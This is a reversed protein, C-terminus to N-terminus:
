SRALGPDQSQKRGVAVWLTIQSPSRDDMLLGVRRAIRLIQVEEMVQGVAYSDGCFRINGCELRITM